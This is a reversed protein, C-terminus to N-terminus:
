LPFKASRSSRTAASDSTWVVVWMVWADIYCCFLKLSKLLMPATLTLLSNVRNAEMSAASLFRRIWDIGSRCELRAHTAFSLLTAAANPRRRRGEGKSKTAFSQQMLLSNPLRKVCCNTRIGHESLASLICIRHAEVPRLSM